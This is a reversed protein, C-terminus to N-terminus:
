HVREKPDTVHTSQLTSLQTRFSSTPTLYAACMTYAAKTKIM